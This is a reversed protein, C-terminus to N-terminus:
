FLKKLKGFVLLFGCFICSIYLVWDGLYQYFTDKKALVDVFGSFYGKTLYPMTSAVTGIPTIVASVGTNGARVVPIGNEVARFVSAAFHQYHGNCTDTWGDNTINILFDAGKNKYDRCLRYFIGEYCILVAFKHEKLTFLEPISGPVFDSGGMKDVLKKVFSFWKQYPFWEGFPVLNIKAYTKEPVGDEKILLASNQPYLRIRYGDRKASVGIEGTLVPKNIERVFNFLHQDFLDKEGNQWRFSITELTASESWIILDPDDAVAMKTYKILEGLYEYRRLHWNDWPSICTQIVSIKFKGEGEEFSKVRVFGAIMIFILTASIYLFIKGERTSYLYKIFFGGEWDLRKIFNGIAINFMIILFNVGLIGTVSSMQIFSIFPYQSYGIYTWPFALFGISQIYDVIIWISPYILFDLKPYKQSLFEALLIKITFFATLSPILFILIVIFGGPVKAGFNGIWGYTFLNGIIGTLFSIYIVEKLSKGRLYVYLPVLFFWAFFSFFKLAFFDYSPFSLFLLISTLFYYKSLIFKKVRNM